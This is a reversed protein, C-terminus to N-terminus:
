ALELVTVIYSSIKNNFFLYRYQEDDFPNSAIM